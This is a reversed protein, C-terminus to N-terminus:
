LEVKDLQKIRKSANTTHSRCLLYGKRVVNAYLKQSRIRMLLSRKPQRITRGEHQLLEHDKPEQAVLPLAAIYSLLAQFALLLLLLNYDYLLM